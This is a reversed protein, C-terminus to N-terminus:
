GNDTEKWNLVYQQFAGNCLVESCRKKRMESLVQYGPKGTRKMIAVAAVLSSRNLGAQCHVLVRNGEDLWKNVLDALEDIQEFTQTIDDYLEVDIKETTEAVTYPEWPYLCLVKDFFKALSPKMAPTGGTWLDGEMQTFLPVDFYGGHIAYGSVRRNKVAADIFGSTEDAM